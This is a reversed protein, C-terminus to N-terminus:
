ATPPGRPPHSLWAIVAPRLLPASFNARGFAPAPPAGLTVDSLLLSAATACLQCCDQGGSEPLSSKGSQRALDIRGAGTSSCIEVFFGGDAAHTRLLGTGGMASMAMAFLGFALLWAAHPPRPFPRIRNQM